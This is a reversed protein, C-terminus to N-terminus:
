TDKGYLFFLWKGTFEIKAVYVLKKIHRPFLDWKFHMISMWVSVRSSVLKNARISLCM